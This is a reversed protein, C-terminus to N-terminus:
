QEHSSQFCSKKDIRSKLLRKFAEYVASYQRILWPIDTAKEEVLFDLLLLQAARVLEPDKVIPLVDEPRSENTTFAPYKEQIGASLAANLKEDRRFLQQFDPLSKNRGFVVKITSCPVCNQPEDTSNNKVTEQRWQKQKRERVEYKPFGYVRATLSERDVKLGMVCAANLTIRRTRQCLDNAQSFEVVINRNEANNSLNLKVTFVEKSVCHDTRAWTLIADNNQGAELTFRDINASFAGATSNQKAYESASETTMYTVATSPYIEHAM